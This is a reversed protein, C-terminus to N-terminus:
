FQVELFYLPMSAKKPLYVGDVRLSKKLEVADFRYADDRPATEGLLEWMTEPLQKFLQCFFSDTEM